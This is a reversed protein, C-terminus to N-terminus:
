PTMGAFAPIETPRVPMAFRLNGRERSHGPPHPSFLAEGETDGWRFSSNMWRDARSTVQTGAGPTAPVLKAPIVAPPHRLAQPAVSFKAPHGPRRGAMVAVLPRASNGALVLGETTMAPSSGAVWCFTGNLGLPSNPGLQQRSSLQHLPRRVPAQPRGEM